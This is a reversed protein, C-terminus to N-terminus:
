KSLCEKMQPSIENYNDRVHGTNSEMISGDHLHDCKAHSLEHLSVQIYSKDSLDIKINIDHTGYSYTGIVGKADWNDWYDPEVDTWIYKGLEHSYPCYTGDSEECIIDFAEEVLQKHFQSVSKDFRYAEIYDTACGNLCLNVTIISFGFILNRLM